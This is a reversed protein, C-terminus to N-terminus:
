LGSTRGLSTKSPVRQCLLRYRRGSSFISDGPKNHRREAKKPGASVAKSGGDADSEDVSRLHPPVLPYVEILVWSASLALTTGRQM